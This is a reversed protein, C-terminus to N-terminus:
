RFRLATARVFLSKRYGLVPFPGGALPYELMGGPLVTFLTSSKSVLEDLQIDLVDKVGVRYVQTAAATASAGAATASSPSAPSSSKLNAASRTSNDSSPSSAPKNSDSAAAPANGGNARSTELNSSFDSKAQAQLIGNNAIKGSASAPQLEQGLVRARRTAAQPPAATTKAGPQNAVAVSKVQAYASAELVASVVLAALFLNKM